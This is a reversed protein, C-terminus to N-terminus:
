ALPLTVRFAAGAFGAPTGSFELSGGHERATNLAMPLGLGTGTAKGSVFPRFMRDSLEASVGPGDDAVLIRMQADDSDTLLLLRGGAPQADIANVVLNTFLGVLQEADGSVADRAAGFEREVTIGSAELQATHVGVVRELLAHVGCVARATSRPRALELVGRVVHDLRNVERLCTDLPVGAREPLNGRRVDRALGQLNLKLSTLPNRIEHSLQASFEGLVALQRSVEIERMMTGIRGLMQDFAASLTGVEDESAPPLRPALDGRGVAGAALTLQELSRTSRGVLVTFAIAVGTALAIVLALDRIRTSTVGATFEPIAASSLVTWGLGDVFATSALRTSDREAYRMVRGGRPVASVDRAAATGIAEDVSATLGPRRSDYLVRRASSDIVLLYGSQGFGFGNLQAPLLTSVRPHLVVDGRRDGTDARGVPQVVPPLTDETGYATFDNGAMQRLLVRGRADRVELSRYSSGNRAWLTRVFTDASSRAAAIRTSDGGALVAFLGQTEANDSLLLADSEVLAYRDRILDAARRASAETRALIIREVARRAHLDDLVGLALLPGVALIAFLLLVRHRLSKLHFM